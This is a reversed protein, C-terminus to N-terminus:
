HHKRDPEVEERPAAPEPQAPLMIVLDPCALAGPGRDSGNDRSAVLRLADALGDTRQQPLVIGAFERHDQDVVLAAVRGALHRADRCDRQAGGVPEGDQRPAGGAPQVQAAPPGLM